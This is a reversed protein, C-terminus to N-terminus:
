ATSIPERERQREGYDPLSDQNSHLYKLLDTAHRHLNRVEPIPGRESLTWRRLEELRAFTKDAQGNWLAWKARTALDHACESGHAATDVKQIAKSADLLHEFRMGIHFWDLIHESGPAVEWQVTRLGADGDSLGSIQTKEDVRLQELAHRIQRLGHEYENTAFAFRTCEGDEGLVKGATVEFHRASLPRNSKVFGGDLGIVLTKSPTPRASGGPKAQDRLLRGGVRRTRNRVTAANTAATVPLVENLFDAVKGFPMLAALKSNLYRLEPATSSKRTFLPAAPNQGFGPCAKV